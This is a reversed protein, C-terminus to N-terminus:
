DGDGIVSDCKKEFSGLPCFSTKNAKIDFIQDVDESIFKSSGDNDKTGYKSMGSWSLYNDKWSINSAFNVRYYIDAFSKEKLRKRNPEESYWDEWNKGIRDNPFPNSVDISRYYYNAKCELGNNEKVCDYLDRENKQIKVSCSSGSYDIIIGDYSSM